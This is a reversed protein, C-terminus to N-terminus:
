AHVRRGWMEKKERKGETRKKKERMCASTKMARRIRSCTSRRSPWCSCSLSLGCFIESFGDSALTYNEVAGIHHVVDHNALEEFAEGRWAGPAAEIFEITDVDLYSVVFFCSFSILVFSLCSPLSFNYPSSSSSSFASTEEERQTKLWAPQATRSFVEKTCRWKSHIQISVSM